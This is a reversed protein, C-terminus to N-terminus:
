IYIAELENEQKNNKVSNEVKRKRLKDNVNGTMNVREQRFLKYLKRKDEFHATDINKEHAILSKLCPCQHGPNIPSASLPNIM